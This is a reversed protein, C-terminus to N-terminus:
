GAYSYYTHTPQPELYLLLACPTVLVENGALFPELVCLLPLKDKDRPLGIQIRLM